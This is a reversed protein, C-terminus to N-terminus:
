LLYFFSFLIFHNLEIKMRQSWSAFIFEQKFYKISVLRDKRFIDVYPKFLIQWKRVVDETSLSKQYEDSVNILIYSKKGFCQDNVCECLECRVSFYGNRKPFIPVEGLVTKIEYSNSGYNLIHDGKKPICDKYFLDVVFPGRRIIVILLQTM